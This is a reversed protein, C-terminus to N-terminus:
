PTPISRDQTTGDGLEGDSNSGWCLVSGDSKRACAHLGGAVVQLVDAGAGLGVVQVPTDRDINTGDGVQGLLNSGWCWVSRDRRVGCRHSSRSALSIADAVPVATATSHANGSQNSGWSWGSGDTKRAFTTHIAASVEVVGSLAVGRSLIVQVPSSRDRTSGDGLQGNDNHGWCWVTGDLKVACNDWLSAAVSTANSIRAPAAYARQATTGDGLQGLDNRGWCWITR